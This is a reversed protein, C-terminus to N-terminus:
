RIFWLADDGQGVIVDLEGDPYSYLSLWTSNNRISYFLAVTGSPFVKAEVMDDYYGIDSFWEYHQDEDFVHYTFTGDERFELTVEGRDVSSEDLYWTGLIFRDSLAKWDTPVTLETHGCTACDQRIQAHGDVDVLWEAGFSHGLAPAAVGGCVSCISAETCTAESGITHPLAEGKTKGCLTCTKPASCTADVWDHGLPDGSTKGCELCTKPHVCDAEQWDHKLCCGSFMGVCLALVLLLSIRKKM